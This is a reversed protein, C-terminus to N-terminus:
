LRDLTNLIEEDDTNKIDYTYEYTVPDYYGARRKTNAPVYLRKVSFSDLRVGKCSISSFVHLYDYGAIWAGRLAREERAAVQHALNEVADSLPEDTM